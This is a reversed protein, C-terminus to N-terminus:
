RDFQDRGRLSQCGPCDCSLQRTNTLKKGKQEVPLFFMDNNAVHLKELEFSSVELVM